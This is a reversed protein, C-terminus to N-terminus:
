TFFTNNYKKCFDSNQYIKEWKSLNPELNDILWILVENCDWNFSDSDKFADLIAAIIDSNVNEDLIAKTLLDKLSCNTKSFENLDDNYLIPGDKILKNLIERNILTCAKTNDGKKPINLQSFVSTSFFSVFLFLFISRFM